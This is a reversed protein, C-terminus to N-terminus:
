GRCTASLLQISLAERCVSDHSVANVAERLGEETPGLVRWSM